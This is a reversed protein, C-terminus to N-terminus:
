VYDLTQVCKKVNNSENKKIKLVVLVAPTFERYLGINIGLIKFDQFIMKCASVNEHSIHTTQLNRAFYAKKKSDQLKRELIM